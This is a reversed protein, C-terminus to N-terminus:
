AIWLGQTKLIHRALSSTIVAYGMGKELNLKKALEIEEPTANRETNEEKLKEQQKYKERDFTEAPMVKEEKKNKKPINTVAIRNGNKWISTMWAKWNECKGEKEAKKSVEIEEKLEEETFNFETILERVTKNSKLKNTKLIEEIGEPFVGVVKKAKEINNNNNKLSQKKQLSNNNNVGSIKGGSIKGGSIKPPNSFEANGITKETKEKKVSNIIYFNRKKGKGNLQEYKVSIYGNDELMKRYKRFTDESINLDRQISEVTPYAEGDSKSGAYSCLYAYLAKAGIDLCKDQMVLKAILGYGKEYVTGQFQKVILESSM